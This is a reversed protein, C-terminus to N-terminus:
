REASNRSITYEPPQEDVVKAPVKFFLTSVAVSTAMASGSTMAAIEGIEADKIIGGIVSGGGSKALAGFSFGHILAALVKAGTSLTEKIGQKHEATEKKVVPASYNFLLKAAACGARYIGYGINEGVYSFVKCVSSLIWPLRAVGMLAYSVISAAIGVALANARPILSLFATLGKQMTGLTAVTGVVTIAVISVSFLLKFFKELSQQTLSKDPDRTFIDVFFRKIEKHMDNEIAVSIWKILLSTYSILAVLGLTAGVAIGVPPCAVSFLGLIAGVAAMGSTVTLAGLAFGGGLACFIGIGMVIKQNRSLGQFINRKAFLSILTEPVTDKFLYTAVATEALFVLALVPILWPLALGAIFSLHSVAVITIVGSGIAYIPTVIWKGFRRWWKHEVTIQQNNQM